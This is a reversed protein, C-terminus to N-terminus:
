DGGEEMDKLVAPIFDLVSSATLGREGTEGKARDAAAGHIFVSLCTSGLPSFGQGCFSPIMGALVDGMGGSAMGPNGTTNVFVKGDPCAIVTRAGKLVVTAETELACDRAVTIRDAQVDGTKMGKLRAMEGPHPTLIIPCHKGALRDAHRALLTLGDADIVLPVKCADLCALLTKEMDEDLGCGPGFAVADKGELLRVVTKPKGPNVPEMMVEMPKAAEVSSAISERAAITVLGAGTRLAGASAMLAAGTKGTSGAIILVHGFNGKHADPRRAGVWHRLMERDIIEGDYGTKELIEEPAGIDVIFVEGALGAGPYVVLGRKMCAFTATKAAKVSAGLPYGTNSDVGSPLDLAIVRAGSANIIEIARKYRGTVKRDLGTGFIADVVLARGELAGALGEVEESGPMHEVRGGMSVLIEFNTKADGKLKERRGLFFVVTERGLNILHRAVVFGDGGNNGQGAVIAVSGEVGRVDDMIIRAAGAGANEMLVAGAIGYENMARKDYEQIQQRTVFIM